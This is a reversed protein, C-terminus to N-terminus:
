GILSGYCEVDRLDAPAMDVQFCRLVVEEDDISWSTALGSLGDIRYTVDSGSGVEVLLEEAIYLPDHAVLSPAVQDFGIEAGDVFAARLAHRSLDDDKPAYYLSVREACGDCVQEATVYLYPGSFRLDAAAEVASALDGAVGPDVGDPIDVTTTTSSPREEASTDTTPDVTTTPQDEDEGMAEAEDGADITEDDRSVATTTSGADTVAAEDDDAFVTLAIVGGLVV